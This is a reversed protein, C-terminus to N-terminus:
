YKIKGDVKHIYDIIITCLTDNYISIYLFSRILAFFLGSLLLCLLIQQFFRLALRSSALEEEEEGESIEECEDLIEVKSIDKKHLKTTTDGQSLYVESSDYSIASNGSSFIVDSGSFPSVSSGSFSFVSSGESFLCSGTLVTFLAVALVVAVICSRRSRM